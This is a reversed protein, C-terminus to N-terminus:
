FTVYLCTVANYLALCFLTMDLMFKSRVKMNVTRYLQLLVTIKDSHITGLSHM